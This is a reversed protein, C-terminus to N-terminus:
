RIGSTLLESLLQAWSVVAFMTTKNGKKNTIMEEIPEKEYMDSYDDIFYQTIILYLTTLQMHGFQWYVLPVYHM